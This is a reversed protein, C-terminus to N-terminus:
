SVKPVYIHHVYMYRRPKSVAGDCFLVYKTRQLFLDGHGSAYTSCACQLIVEVESCGMEGCISVV